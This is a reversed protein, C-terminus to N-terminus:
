QCDNSRIEDNGRLCIHEKRFKPSYHYLAQDRWELFPKDCSLGRLLSQFCHNHINVTGPVLILRDWGSVMEADPYKKDIGEASEVAIITSNETVVAYDQRFQDEAYVLKPKYILKM